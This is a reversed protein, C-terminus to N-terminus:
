ETEEETDDNDKESRLEDRESDKEACEALQEAKKIPAVPVPTPSSDKQRVDKSLAQMERVEKMEKETAGSRKSVLEMEFDFLAQHIKNVVYLQQVRDHTRIRGGIYNVFHEIFDKNDEKVTECGSDHDSTSTSNRRIWVCVCVVFALNTLKTDLSSKRANGCM